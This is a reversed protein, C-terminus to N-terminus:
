ETKLSKVPNMLAAKISQYSVTLFAILLALAGALGFIWWSLETQYAFTGLWKNVAWWALPSALVLAILVLRLFDTSLLTVISAVSAGLVKRVGIEKTRQEATFAALAFLGLCSILIALIGFYNVLTSIQQEAKYLKEFAEDLFHYTFPYTPNFQKSVQELDAIAQQTKGAQTKVLLYRTNEPYFVVVLPTIAQHLSSLHFDKMLGVIQGKGRWFTIEKGVPAKLGMLKAATENILYNSSDALSGARFDRGGLLKINTTRIFDSGVSMASVSVLRKPDKGPWSLDTSNSRVDIPLRNTLTASAVSPNRLIAQRYPEMTQPQALAGELPIYVVNERDLGLNKTRLYNMQKGVVLMGVILFISLSFQFVVLTRRFLAPGAGFQLRSSPGSGKLIKIPQLASLFLAPYSGSLFGTILVLGAIIFWLTSNTLDLTLQREFLANFTPLIASVFSLALVVALLSTLISESLFQGILSSRGAGVVKRVGVEKARVSSRATALNMFNICAILLIFLAVISFIRVYEIQGGVVKGNKYESYLHMDAMPHLIPAEHNNFKAYRPFIGKLLAETQAVTIGSKLRAYILVSNTGWENMWAEEYNKFNTLWDFQLTSNSPLNELVAGVTYNKQNDLQLTKGLAVENPFYKEALRRSIIIQNLQGLAVKPNGYLAPLDFVDFFDSSAYEGQEKASKETSSGNVAKVLIPGSDNLKTIAAIGPVDRSIAEKLPGPTYMATEVPGGNFAYNVRVNYINEVGPLFRDYSLEDHVWLGVLLACAMGLALGFVNISSYFKNKLLSRIAIKAYNTLM